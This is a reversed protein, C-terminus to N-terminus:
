VNDQVSVFFRDLDGGELDSFFTLFSTTLSSSSSSSSSGTTFRGRRATFSSSSSSSSGIGTLTLTSDFSLVSGLGLACDEELFDFVM